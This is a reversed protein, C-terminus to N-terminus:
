KNQLKLIEKKLEIMKNERGLMLENLKKFEDKQEQLKSEAEKRLTIDHFICVLNIENNIDTVSFHLEYYRKDKKLKVELISSAFQNDFDLSFKVVKQGTSINWVEDIKVLDSFKLGLVQEFSYGFIKEATKNWFVIESEKDIVVIGDNISNSISMIKKESAISEKKSRHSKIFYLFIISILLSVFFWELWFIINARKLEAQYHLYDVDVGLVSVVEGDKNIIPTFQSLYTGYEDTYIETTFARGENFAKTIEPPAQEYLKGPSVYLPEGEPTSEVIFYIDEGKKTLLYIADIGKSEFIAGLGIIEEKLRVFDDLKSIDGPLMNRVFSIRDPNVAAISLDSTFSKEKDFDDKINKELFYFVVFGVVILSIFLILPWFYSKNKKM